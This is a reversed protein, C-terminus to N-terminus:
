RVIIIGLSALLTQLYVITLEYDFSLYVRSGNHVVLETGKM